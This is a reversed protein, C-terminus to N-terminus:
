ALPLLPKTQTLIYIKSFFYVDNVAEARYKNHKLQYCISGTLPIFCHCALLNANLFSNHLPRYVSPRKPSPSPSPYSPAIFILTLLAVLLLFLLPRSLPSYFFCLIAYTFSNNFRPCLYSLPLTEKCIELPFPLWPPTLISIKAFFNIDNM